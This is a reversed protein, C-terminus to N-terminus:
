SSSNSDSDNGKGGLTKMRIVNKDRKDVPYDVDVQIVPGTDHHVHSTTVTRINVLKNANGSSTTDKLYERRTRKRANLMALFSSIYLKTLLFEISLFVLNNPMALLTILAALSAATTLGGSILTMRIICFIVGDSEAFGSRSKILYYCMAGCLVVDVATTSAFSTIVAWSIHEAEVFTNPLYTEVALLIGVAYGGAVFVFVFAPWLVHRHANGLKWVRIAYLTQVFLIIVINVTIQLKLSWHVLQIAPLSGFSQIVYHYMTYVTLSLHLSDLVWLMAVSIKHFRWDNSYNNYYIFVLITTFGYLIAAFFAGVLTAGITNNLTAPSM